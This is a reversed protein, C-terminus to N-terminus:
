FLVTVPLQGQFTTSFKDLLPSWRTNNHLSSGFILMFTVTLLQAEICTHGRSSQFAAYNTIVSKPMVWTLFAALHWFLSIVATTLANSMLCLCTIILGQTQQIWVWSSRGTENYYKRLDIKVSVNLWWMDARRCSSIAISNWSFTRVSCVTKPCCLM